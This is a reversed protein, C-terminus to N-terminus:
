LQKFDQDRTQLNRVVTSDIQTETKAEEPAVAQRLEMQMFTLNTRNGIHSRSHDERKQIM